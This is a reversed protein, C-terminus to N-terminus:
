EIIDSSYILLDLCSIVFDLDEMVLNLKLYCFRVASDRGNPDLAVDALTLNAVVVALPGNQLMM